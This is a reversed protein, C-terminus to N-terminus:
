LWDKKSNKVKLQSNDSSETLSKLGVIESKECKSFTGEFNFQEKGKNKNSINMSISYSKNHNVCNGYSSNYHTLSVAKNYNLSKSISNNESNFNISKKKKLLNSTKEYITFNNSILQQSAVHYNTNLSPTKNHYFNQNNKNQQNENPIGSAPQEVEIVNNNGLNTNILDKLNFSKLKNIQYLSSNKDVKNLKFNSNAVAVLNVNNNSKKKSILNDKKLNGSANLNTSVSPQKSKYFNVNKEDENSCPSNNIKENLKTSQKNNNSKVVIHNKLQHYNLHEVNYDNIRNLDLNVWSENWIM